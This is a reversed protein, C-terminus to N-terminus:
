KNQAEHSLKELDKELAHLQSAMKNMEGVVQAGFTNIEEMRGQLIEIAREKKEKSVVGAGLSILVKETDKIDSMIFTGSGLTSWMENTSKVDELKHLADITMNLEQLRQEIVNREEAYAQLQQRLVQYQVYKAQMEREPNKVPM